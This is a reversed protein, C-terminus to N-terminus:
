HHTGPAISDGRLPTVSDGRLDGISSEFSRVGKLEKGSAFGTFALSGVIAGVMILMMAARIVMSKMDKSGEM